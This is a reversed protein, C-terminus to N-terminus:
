EDFENEALKVDLQYGRPPPLPLFAPSLESKQKEVPSNIHTLIYREASERLQCGGGYLGLIAPNLTYFKGKTITIRNM